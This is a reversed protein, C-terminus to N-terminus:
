SPVESKLRAEVRENLRQISARKGFFLVVHDGPGFTQWNPSRAWTRVESSTEQRIM